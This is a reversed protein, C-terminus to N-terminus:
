SVKRSLQTLADKTLAQKEQSKLNRGLVKQIVQTVLTMTEEQLEKQMNEKQTQIQSQATAVAEEVTHKADKAAQNAIYQAQTKAESIIMQAQKEAAEQIKASNEETEKLRKEILDANELSEAIKQKRDDLMKLIKGYFFKRLLFLIILFNIIQGFLLTPQVGFNKLIEM